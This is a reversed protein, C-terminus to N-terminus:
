LAVIAQVYSVTNRPGAVRATIRYYVQSSYQLQIAGAGKSGGTTSSTPSTACNVGVATPAGATLCLRHIIYSSTNGAADQSLTLAQTGLQANWFDDWSQGATPDQRAAIYGAGNGHLTTGTNNQELWAIATEIGTDGAHTAGQQFALNGAIINTTSVSRVMAIGALTMAVLVILTIFLVIGRQQGAREPIRFQYSTTLM